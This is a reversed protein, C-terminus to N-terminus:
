ISGNDMEVIEADPDLRQSEPGNVRFWYASMFSTPGSKRLMLDCIWGRASPLLSDSRLRVYVVVDEVFEGDRIDFVVEAEGLRSSAAAGGGEATSVICRVKGQAIVPHMERIRVPVEFIFHPRAPNIHTTKAETKRREDDAQEAAAPVVALPLLWIVLGYVCRRFRFKM